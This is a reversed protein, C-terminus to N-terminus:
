GKSPVLPLVRATVEGASETGTLVLFKVQPYRNRDAAVAAAPADGLAVVIACRRIVQSALFQQAVAATQEGVVPDYTVQVDTRDQV